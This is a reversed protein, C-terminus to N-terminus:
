RDGRSDPDAQHGVLLNLRDVVDRLRAVGDALDTPLAPTGKATQVWGL